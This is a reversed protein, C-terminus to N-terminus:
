AFVGTTRQQGWFKAILGSAKGKMIRKLPPQQHQTAAQCPLDDVSRMYLEEEDIEEEPSPLCMLSSAPISLSSAISSSSSSTSLAPMRSHPPLYIPSLPPTTYYSQSQSSQLQHGHHPVQHYLLERQKQEEQQKRAYYERERLVQERRRVETKIPGIFPAFHVLLDDNTIRLDWDLLYLLQKEMLNVEELAFLGATYKAWHKNKPSSDNLTKAALILAALFVRHCTCALGRAMSPLRARLRSLFVLTSMLTPTQVNSQTVLTAIFTTLSPLRGPTSYQDDSSTPSAPPTNPYGNASSTDPDCRIVTQTTSVLYAIMQPSVPSSVFIDLAARDIDLM